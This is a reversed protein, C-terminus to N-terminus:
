SPLSGQSAPIWIRSARRPWSSNARVLGIQKGFTAIAARSDEIAEGAAEWNTQALRLAQNCKDIEAQTTKVAARAKNLNTSATSVADAANQTSKSLATNQGALKKVEQVSARYETKLADLNAKAALTASDNEGLTSSFVRV